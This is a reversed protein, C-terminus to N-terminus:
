FTRLTVFCPMELMMQTFNFLQPLQEEWHVLKDELECATSVLVSPTLAGRKDRPLYMSTMIEHLSDFLESSAKFFDHALQPSM